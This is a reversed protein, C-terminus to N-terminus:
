HSDARGLDIVQDSLAIADPRHAVSVTTIGLASINDLVRKETQVDLHGTAEDLFLIKPERYLARALTLRQIQGGSLGTGAEGVLTETRMPLAQIDAWCEARVAALRVRSLDPIASFASINEAITGQFLQDSQLVCASQSILVQQDWVSRELGDVLIQGTSAELHGALLRLLTTKGCGSPGKIVVNAGNEIHCNFNSVISVGDTYAFGLGVAQLRGVVDVKVAGIPGTPLPTANLIDLIRNTHVQLISFRQLLEIIVVVAGALRARMAVFAFLVGLTIERDLIGTIGVALFIIQETSNIFGTCANRVISLKGQTVGVATAALFSQQWHMRRVTGLGLGRVTDYARLTEVLSTSQSARHILSQQSLRRTLPMLTVTLFVTFVLGGVSVVTLWPSYFFMIAITSILVSFQVVANVGHTAVVERIPTLSELKSM